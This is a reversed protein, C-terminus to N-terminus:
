VLRYVIAASRVMITILATTMVVVRILRPQGEDYVFVISARCCVYFLMLRKSNKIPTHTCDPM